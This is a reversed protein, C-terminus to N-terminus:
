VAGGTKEEDLVKNRSMQCTQLPLRFKVLYSSQTHTNTSGTYSRGCVQGEAPQATHTNTNLYDDM